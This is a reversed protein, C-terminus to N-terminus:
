IPLYKQVSLEKKWANTKGNFYINRDSTKNGQPVIQVGNNNQVM